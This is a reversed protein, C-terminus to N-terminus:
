INEKLQDVLAFDSFKHKPVYAVSVVQEEVKKIFMSPNFKKVPRAPRSGGRGSGSSKGASPKGSSFSRGSGPKGGHTPKSSSYSYQKDSSRGSNDYKSM